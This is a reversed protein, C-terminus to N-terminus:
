SSGASEAVHRGRQNNQSLRWNACIWHEGASQLKICYKDFACTSGAWCGSGSSTAEDSLTSVGGCGDLTLSVLAPIYGLMVETRGLEASIHFRCIMRHTLVLLRPTESCRSWVHCCDPAYDRNGYRKIRDVYTLEFTELVPLAFKRLVSGATDEHQCELSLDCLSMLDIVRHNAFLQSAAAAPYGRLLLVDASLAPLEKIGIFIKELAPSSFFSLFHHIDPGFPYTWDFTWPHPLEVPDVKPLNNSIQVATEANLCGDM